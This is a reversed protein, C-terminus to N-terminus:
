SYGIIQNLPTRLEHRLESPKLMAGQSGDVM